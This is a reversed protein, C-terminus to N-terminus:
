DDGWEPAHRTAAVSVKPRDVPEDDVTRETLDVEYKRDTERDFVTFCTAETPQRQFRRAQTAAAFADAADSEDVDIMWTVLYRVM